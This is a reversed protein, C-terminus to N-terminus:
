YDFSKKDETFISNLMEETLFNQEVAPKHVYSEPETPEDFSTNMYEIEEDQSKKSLSIFTSKARSRTGLSSGNRIEATCWDFERGKLTLQSSNTLTLGLKQGVAIWDQTTLDGLFKYCKDYPANSGPM